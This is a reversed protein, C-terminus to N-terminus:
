LFRGFFSWIADPEWPQVEHVGKFECFVVPYGSDCGQYEVCGHDPNSDISATATQCHNATTWYAATARGQDIRITPDDIGNAIFAAIQGTGPCTPRYSGWGPGAGSMPAIARFVSGLQCGITNSMMGGYSMGASFLRNQDICFNSGLWEIIARVFAIDQGNTNPWGYDTGGGGDAGVPLGQGAVFIMPKGDRESRCRLGYYGGWYVNACNSMSYEQALGDATGTLGHWAFVVPYAKSSDYTSPLSVDFSRSKTAGAATVDITYTKFKKGADPTPWSTAGCAQTPSADAGFAGGSGGSGGAGGSGASGASGGSGAMAGSGGSGAAGGTAVAGGSGATGGSGGSGATGGTAVAGGSGGSMSGGGGAAGGSGTAAGVNNNQETGSSCGPGGIAFAWVLAGLMVIQRRADRM